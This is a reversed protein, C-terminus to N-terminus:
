TNLGHLKESLPSLQSRLVLKLVDHTVNKEKACDIASESLVRMIVVSSVMM